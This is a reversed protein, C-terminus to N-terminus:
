SEMHQSSTSPRTLSAQLRSCASQSHRRGRLDYRHIVSARCLRPHVLGSWFCHMTAPPHCYPPSRDRQTCGGKRDNTLRCCWAAKFNAFLPVLDLLISCASPNIITLDQETGPSLFSSSGQDLVTSMCSRPVHFYSSSGQHVVMNTLCSRHLCFCVWSGPTEM